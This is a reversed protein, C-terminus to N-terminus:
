LWVRESNYIYTHEQDAGFITLGFAATGNHGM